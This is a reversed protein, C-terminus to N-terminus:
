RDQRVISLVETAGLSEVQKLAARIDAAQLVTEVRFQIQFHELTTGAVRAARPARASRPTRKREAPEPKPKVVPAIAARLAMRRTAVPTEAPAVPAAPQAVAAAVPAVPAAVARSVRRTSPRPRRPPFARLTEEAGPRTVSPTHGNLQGTPVAPQVELPAPEVPGCFDCARGRAAAKERAIRENRESPNEGKLRPLSVLAVHGCGFELRAPIVSSMM